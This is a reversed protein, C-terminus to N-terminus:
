PSTTLHIPLHRILGAAPNFRVHWDAAATTGCWQAFAPYRLVRTPDRVLPFHNGLIAPLDPDREQLRRETVELRAQCWAERSPYPDPPLMREESCVVGSDYAM